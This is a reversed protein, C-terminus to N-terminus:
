TGRAPAHEGPPAPRLRVRVVAGGARRNDLEIRGSHDEVIRRAIALGFGSGHEKTTTFPELFRAPDGDFGPGEDEISVTVTEEPVDRDVRVTVTGGPETAELANRLLNWLVQSLQNPDAAVRPLDAEISTELRIGEAMPDQRVMAVVERVADALDVPVLEPPKSVGYALMDAVLRDLREAERGITAVLRRGAPDDVTRSLLQAAGSIAALPNRIEHAVSASLRGLAALNESRRLREEMRQIETIDQFHVITGVVAGDGRRLPSRAIGLRRRVGGPREYDVEFRGGTAPAADAQAWFDSLPRGELHDTGLIARAAPNAYTIRDDPDTTLLGSDLSLLIHTTLNRLHGAEETSRAIQTNLYASLAAVGGIAAVNRLMEAAAVSPPIGETSIGAPNWFGLTQAIGFAVYVLAGTAASTVVLRRSGMIAAGLITLLYLFAFGSLLGGSLQVVATALLVDVTTQGVAIGALAGPRRLRRAFYVASAYAAALATWFEWPIGTEGFVARQWTVVAALGTCVFLVGLRFLMYYAVRRRGGADSAEPATLHLSRAADDSSAQASDESAAM